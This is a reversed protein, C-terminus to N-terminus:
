IYQLLEMRNGYPDHFTFRSRGTIPVEEIIIVNNAELHQRAVQLDTVELAFHRKTKNLGHETGIHLQIDAIQYWYGKSQNLDQPRDIQECGMIKSYFEHAEDEKGEPVPVYIHDVRTYKIM